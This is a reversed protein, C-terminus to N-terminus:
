VTLVIKGSESFVHQIHGRHVETDEGNVETYCFLRAHNREM